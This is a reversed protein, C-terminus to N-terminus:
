KEVITMTANSLQCFTNIGEKYTSFEGVVIIETGVEPYSEPEEELVFEIGNRHGHEEEVIMVSYYIRDVTKIEYFLGQIKIVKGEMEETKGTVGNLFEIAEHKDMASLDYDITESCSTFSLMLVALLLIAVIKKM